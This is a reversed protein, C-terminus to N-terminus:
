FIANGQVTLTQSANGITADSNALQKLADASLTETATEPTEPAKKSNLYSVAGTAGVVVVILVFGLLYVDVKRWFRKLGSQKKANAEATEAELSGTTDVGEAQLQENTKELADAPVARAPSNSAASQDGGEAPKKEEM